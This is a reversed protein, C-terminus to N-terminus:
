VRVKMGSRVPALRSYGRIVRIVRAVRLCSICFLYVALLLIIQAFVTFFGPEKKSRERGLRKKGNRKM